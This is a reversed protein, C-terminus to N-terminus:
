EKEEVIQFDDYSYINLDDIWYEKNTSFIIENSEPLPELLNFSRKAIGDKFVIVSEEQLVIIIDYWKDREITTSYEDTRYEDEKTHRFTISDPHFMITIEQDPYYGNFYLTARRSAIRNWSTDGPFLKIKFSIISSNPFQENLIVNLRSKDEGYADLHLVGDEIEITENETRIIIFDDLNDSFDNSYILEQNTTVVNEYDMSLCSIMLFSIFILYVIKSM